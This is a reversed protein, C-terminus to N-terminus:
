AFITGAIFLALYTFWSRVASAPGIEKAQMAIRRAMFAHLPFAVLVVSLYLRIAEELQPRTDPYLPDPLHYDVLAFTLVCLCSAALGLTFFLFLYRFADRSSM